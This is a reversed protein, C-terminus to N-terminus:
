RCTLVGRVVLLDTAGGATRLIRIRARLGAVEVNLWWFTDATVAKRHRRDDLTSVGAALTSAQSEYWNTTDGDPQFDVVVDISTEAVWDLNCFLILHTYGGEGDPNGVAFTNSTRNAALTVSETAAAYTTTGGFLERPTLVRDRTYLRTSGGAM